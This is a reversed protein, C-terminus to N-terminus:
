PEQITVPLLIIVILYDGYFVNIILVSKIKFMLKALTEQM